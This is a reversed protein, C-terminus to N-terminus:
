RYPPAAGSPDDAKQSRHRARRRDVNLDRHRHDGNEQQLDESEGLVLQGEGSDADDPESVADSGSRDPRPRRASTPPVLSPAREAAMQRSVSFIM